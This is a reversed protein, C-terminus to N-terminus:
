CPRSGTPSSPPAPRRFPIAADRIKTKPWPAAQEHDPRFRPVGRRHRRHRARVGVAAHARHRASADLAPHCCLSILSLDDDHPDARAEPDGLERVAAVEKDARRGERRLTDTAKHRATAILWGLPNAPAGNATWTTVAAGCADQVADEAAALDGTLLTVTAVAPWWAAACSATEIPDTLAAGSRRHHPPGRRLRGEGGPDDGGM